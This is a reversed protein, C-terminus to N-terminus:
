RRGAGPALCRRLATLLLEGTIPRAAFYHCGIRYSQPGFGNDNSFWILPVTPLLDRAAYAGEMGDAGDRFVIVLDCRSRPLERIFSDYDQFLRLVPRRLLAKCCEELLRRFAEQEAPHAYVSINM